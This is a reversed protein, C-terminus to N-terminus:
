KGQWPFTTVNHLIGKFYIAPMGQKIGGNKNLEQVAVDQENNAMCSNHDSFKSKVSWPTLWTMSLKIQSYLAGVMATRIYEITNQGFNLYNYCRLVQIRRSIRCSIKM